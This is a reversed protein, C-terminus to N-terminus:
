KGSGDKSGVPFEFGLFAGFYTNAAPVSRGTEPLHATTFFFARAEFGGVLRPGNRSIFFSGSLSAFLDPSFTSYSSAAGTSSSSATPDRTGDGTFYHIGPGAHLEFISNLHLVAGAELGLDNISLTAPVLSTSGAPL